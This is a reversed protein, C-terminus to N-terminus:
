KRFFFDTAYTKFCLHNEAKMKQLFEVQKVNNICLSQIKTYLTMVYHEFIAVIM